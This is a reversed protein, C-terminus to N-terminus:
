TVDLFCTSELESTDALISSCLNSGSLTYSWPLAAPMLSYNCFYKLHVAPWMLQESLLLFAVHWKFIKLSDKLSPAAAWSYAQSSLQTPRAASQPQPMELM